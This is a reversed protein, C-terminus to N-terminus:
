VISMNYHISSRRWHPRQWHLASASTVHLFSSITLHTRKRHRTERIRRIFTAWTWHLHWWLANHKFLFFYETKRRWTNNEQPWLRIAYLLTGTYLITRGFGLTANKCQNWEKIINTFGFGHWGNRFDFSNEGMHASSKKTLCHKAGWFELPDPQIWFLLLVNMFFSSISLLQEVFDLSCYFNTDSSLPVQSACATFYRIIETSGM